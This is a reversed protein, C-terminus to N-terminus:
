IALIKNRSISYMAFHLPKVTVSDIDFKCKFVHSLFECNRFALEEPPIPARRMQDSPLPMPYQSEGYDAPPADENPYRERWDEPLPAGRGEQPNAKNYNDRLESPFGPFNPRKPRMMEEETESDSSEVPLASKKELPGQEDM